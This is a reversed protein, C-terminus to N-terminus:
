IKISDEKPENKKKYDDSDASKNQKKILRGIASEAEKEETKSNSKNASQKSLESKYAASEYYNHSENIKRKYNPKGYDLSNRDDSTDNENMNGKTYDIVVKTYDFMGYGTILSEGSDENRFEIKRLIVYDEDYIGINKYGNKRLTNKIFNQAYQENMEEGFLLNKFIKVLNPQTLMLKDVIKNEVSLKDPKTFIATGFFLVLLVIVILSTYNGGSNRNSYRNDLNGM